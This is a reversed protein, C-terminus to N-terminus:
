ISKYATDIDKSKNLHCGLQVDVVFQLTNLMHRCSGEGISKQVCNNVVQKTEDNLHRGHVSYTAESVINDKDDVQVLSTLISSILCPAHICSLLFFCLNLLLFCFLNLLLFVFGFFCKCM